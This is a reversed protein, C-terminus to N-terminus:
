GEQLGFNSLLVSIISAQQFGPSLMPLNAFSFFIQEVIMKLANIPVDFCFQYYLSFFAVNFWHKSFVL